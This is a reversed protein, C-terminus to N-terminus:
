GSTFDVLQLDVGPFVDEEVVPGIGRAHFVQTARGPELPSTEEVQVLDDYARHATSRRADIAVVRSEDLAVGPAREQVFGDGVRPTAPM